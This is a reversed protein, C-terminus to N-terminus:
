GLLLIQGESERLVRILPKPTQKQRPISILKTLEPRRLFKVLPLLPIMLNPIRYPRPVMTESHAEMNRHPGAACHPAMNSLVLLTVVIIKKVATTATSEQEITGANVSAPVNWPYAGTIM